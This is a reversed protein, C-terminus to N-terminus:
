LKPPLPELGVSWTIARTKHMAREGPCGPRANGDGHCSRTETLEGYKVDRWWVGVRISRRSSSGYCPTKNSPFAEGRGREVDKEGSSVPEGVGSNHHGLSPLPPTRQPTRHSDVHTGFSARKASAM